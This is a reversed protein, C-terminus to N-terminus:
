VKKLKKVTSSLVVTIAINKVKEKQDFVRGQGRKLGAYATKCLKENECLFREFLKHRQCGSFQKVKSFFCHHHFCCFIGKCRVRVHSVEFPVILAFIYTYKPFVFFNCVTKAQSHPGPVTLRKLLLISDRSVRGKILFFYVKLYLPGIRFNKSVYLRKPGSFTQHGKSFKAVQWFNWYRRSSLMIDFLIIDDWGLPCCTPLSDM